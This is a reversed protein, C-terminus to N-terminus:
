LIFAKTALLLANAIQEPTADWQFQGFRLSCVLYDVFLRKTQEDQKQVVPIIADYLGFYPLRDLCCKHERVLDRGLFCEKFYYVGNAELQWDDLLIIALMKQELTANSIKRPNNKQCECTVRLDYDQSTPAYYGRDHCRACKSEPKM